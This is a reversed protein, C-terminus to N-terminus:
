LKKTKKLGTMQLMQQQNTFIYKGLGCFMYNVQKTAFVLLGHACTTNFHIYAEYQLRAEIDVDGAHGGNNVYAKIPTQAAGVGVELNGCLTTDGGTTSVKNSLLYDSAATDYCAENIQNTSSYALFHQTRGDITSYYSNLISNIETKTYVVNPDFTILNYVEAKDCCAEAIQINTLYNLELELKIPSIASFSQSSSNLFLTDVETKTYTNLIFTSLGNDIDDTETKTCYNSFDINSVLLGMEAENYYNSFNVNALLSGTAVKDYYNAQIGPVNYYTYLIISMKAQRYFGNHLDTSNTYASLTSDTETKTYYNSLGINEFLADIETNSYMDNYIDAVLIDVFTKNYINPFEYDGFFTCAKTSSLFQAIPAVGHISNQLFAFM